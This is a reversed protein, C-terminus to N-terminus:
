FLCNKWPWTQFKTAIRLRNARIWYNTNSIISIIESLQSFRLQIVNTMSEVFLCIIFYSYFLFANWYSAYRGSTSRISCDAEWPPQDRPTDAPPTDAGPPTQEHPLAQDQPAQPPTYGLMCQPLCEGGRHVSNKVCAQSFKGKGLKTAAPLLHNNPVTHFCFFTCTGFGVTDTM